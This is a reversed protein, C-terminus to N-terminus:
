SAESDLPDTLPSIRSDHGFDVLGKALLHEEPHVKFIIADDHRLLTNNDKDRALITVAYAGPLFICSFNFHVKLRYTDLFSSQYPPTTAGALALGGLTKIMMRFEVSRVSAPLEVTLELTYRRGLSLINVRRNDGGKIKTDVLRGQLEEPESKNASDFAPDFQETTSIAYDKPEPANHIPASALTAEHDSPSMSLIEDRISARASHAAHALRLHQLVIQKPRGESLKEGGDMLVARDCLQIITQTAHSVFVITAGNMKIQEIRAFCKRQFAEDGVALAEDIVLIDPDVNVATAFALRVFMGSSYTKVPREIFEGIDAFAAIAEFREDMEARTRGHIAGNLYVNERGSFNGDFGAGLELLAAIRGRTEVTGASPQLIGCIVQLLTSKGCGNRGVIGVTEGRRVELSVDKLATFERHWQVRGFSILELLRHEPKEYIQFNKSLRAVRIAVDSSM